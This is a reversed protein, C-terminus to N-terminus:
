NFIIVEHIFSMAEKNELRLTNKLSKLAYQQGYYKASYVNAYGGSGVYKLERFRLYNFMKVDLEKLKQEIFETLENKQIVIQNTDENHSSSLNVDNLLTPEQTFITNLDSLESVIDFKQCSIEQFSTSPVSTFVNSTPTNIFVLNSSTQYNFPNNANFDANTLYMVYLFSNNTFTTNSYMNFSLDPTSNINHSFTDSKPNMEDHVRLTEKAIQRYEAKVTEDAMSSVITMLLYYGNERATKVSIKRNPAGAPIRGDPSKKSILEIMDVTPPFKPSIVIHNPDQKPESSTSELLLSKQDDSKLMETNLM